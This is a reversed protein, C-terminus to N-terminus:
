LRYKMDLRGARASLIGPATLSCQPTSFPRLRVGARREPLVPAHDPDSVRRLVHRRKPSQRQIQHFPLLRQFRPPPSASALPSPNPTDAFSVGVREILHSQGAPAQKDLFALMERALDERGKEVGAEVGSEFRERRFTEWTKMALDRGRMILYAQLAAVIPVAALRVLIAAAADLANEDPQRSIIAYCIVFTEGVACMIGFIAFYLEGWREPVSLM